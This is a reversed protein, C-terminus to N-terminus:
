SLKLVCREAVDIGVSDIFEKVIPKVIRKGQLNLMSLRIFEDMDYGIDLRLNEAANSILTQKLEADIGDRSEGECSFGDSSLNKQPSTSAAADSFYGEKSERGAGAKGDKRFKKMPGKGEKRPSQDLGKEERDGSGGNVGPGAVEPAVVSDAVLCAHHHPAAAEIRPDACEFLVWTGTVPCRLSSPRFDAKYRMKPCSHIYYGLYYYKLDPRYVSARRVWEIERLATYKGLNLVRSLVPDYFAYVSSLCRPLIDVVGVAVLTGGLRYQQHYSGYPIHVDYGENDKSLQAASGWGSLEERGGNCRSGEQRAEMRGTGSGECRKKKRGAATADETGGGVPPFPPDCLFRFFASKSKKIREEKIKKRRQQQMVHDTARAPSKMHAPRPGSNRRETAEKEEVLDMGNSDGSDTEEDEEGYANGGDDEEENETAYPDADGHIMHQYKAYLAHVDPMEFSIRSPVSTVTLIKRSGDDSPAPLDNAVPSTAAGGDSDDVRELDVLIFGMGDAQFNPAVAAVSDCSQKGEEEAGTCHLQRLIDAALSDADVSGRSMGALARAVSCTYRCQAASVLGGGADGGSPRTAKKGGGKWMKLRCLSAVRDNTMGLSPFELAVGRDRWGNLVRIAAAAVLAQARELEASAAGAGDAAPPLAGV